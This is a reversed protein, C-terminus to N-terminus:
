IQKSVIMVDGERRCLLGLAPLQSWFDAFSKNVCDPNEISLEIGSLPLMAFAMAIRHDNFTEILPNSQPVSTEGKWEIADDEANLSYGLKSLQSVMAHLRDSEKFRLNRVGTFKYPLGAACLAVALSPVIDPNDALDFQCRSPTSFDPLPSVSVGEVSFASGIGLKEYIDAIRADGQLSNELPFLGELELSLNGLLAAEYFFAAASWDSEIKFGNPEKYEGKKVTLGNDSVSIDIGFDKMVAATLAVYPASRLPSSFNLTLGNEWSPACLALASIFQSSIHAEIDFTGGILRHGTVRYPGTSEPGQIEITAGAKRLIDLLPLMPRQLLRPTGTIVFDADPTSACVATVFRLATGSGQVDLPTEGYDIPEEDAYLNLLAQQLARLDESEEFMPDAPLTGAFYTAVLYRSAISKSAPLSVPSNM